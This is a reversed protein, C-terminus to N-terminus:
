LREWSRKVAQLNESLAQTLGSIAPAGDEQLSAMGYGVYEPARVMDQARALPM